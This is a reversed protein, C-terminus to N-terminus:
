SFQNQHLHFFHQQGTGVSSGLDVRGACDEVGVLDVELLLPACSLLLAYGILDNGHGPWVAFRNLM